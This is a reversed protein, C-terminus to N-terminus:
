PMEGKNCVEGMQPDLGLVRGQLGGAYFYPTNEVKQFRLAPQLKKMPPQDSDPGRGLYAAPFLCIKEYFRPAKKGPFAEEIIRGMLKGKSQSHLDIGLIRALTPAIDANSVPAPNVFRKKFDPGIAAMFNFTNARSFSGHMGQGQELNTDAIEVGCRFPEDCGSSFSRFSVFVSPRPTRASGQLAVASLPITGPFKGFEDNIFLGGVYDQSLLFQILARIYNKGASSTLYILASGAGGTIVLDPNVPDRGILANSYRPRKSLSIVAPSPNISTSECTSQRDIEKNRNDPDFLPLDLANAIDLALFGPPLHGHPVDQYSCKAAQSTDSQKSITSFGHDSTVFINTTSELNLRKLSLRLQRLTDDTNRIAALSTSANIGPVVSYRSDLQNHQSYDPDRAWFVLVFPKGRQKFVPLVAKELVASFYEQQASNPKDSAPLTLPLGAAILAERIDENLPIGKAVGTKEDQLGTHDDIIITAEGTRDTHDMILTPGVKGIAATSLGQQRAAALLTIENLYNDSFHEDMAGLVVNEQLFSTVSTEGNAAQIPFGTYLTNAFNGTDGLYHGTAIVSANATTVTPYHSHSNPFSVGERKLKDLSPATKADVVSGRLGDAVFIIVNHRQSVKHEKAFSSTSFPLSWALFFLASSFSILNNKM